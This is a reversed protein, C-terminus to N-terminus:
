TRLRHRPLRRQRRQRQRQTTTTTTTPTTSTTTTTTPNTSTSTPNAVLFPLVIVGSQEGAARKFINQFMLKHLGNALKTTDIALDYAKYPQAGNVPPEDMLVKGLVPPMAHM